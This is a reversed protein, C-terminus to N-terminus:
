FPLGIVLYLTTLGALGVASAVLFPVPRLGRRARSSVAELAQPATDHVPEFDLDGGDFVAVRQATEMAARTRAGLELPTQPLRPWLSERDFPNSADNRFPTM